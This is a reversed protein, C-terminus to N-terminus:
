TEEQHEDCSQSYCHKSYKSFYLHNSWKLQGAFLAELLIEFLLLNAQTPLFSDDSFSVALEM